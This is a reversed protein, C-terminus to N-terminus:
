ISEIQYDFLADAAGSLDGYAGSLTSLHWSRRQCFFDKFFNDVPDNTRRSRFESNTSSIGIALTMIM